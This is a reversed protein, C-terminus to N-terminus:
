ADGRKSLAILALFEFVVTAALLSTIATPDHAPLVEVVDYGVFPLGALRRIVQLGFASTPGGAEPTGAAGGISLTGGSGVGAKGEEPPNLSRGQGQRRRL